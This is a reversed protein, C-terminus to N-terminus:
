VFVAEHNSGETKNERDAEAIKKSADVIEKKGNYGIALNITKEKTNETFKKNEIIKLLYDEIVQKTIKRPDPKMNKSFFTKLCNQYTKITRLSLGRRLAEKRVLENIDM